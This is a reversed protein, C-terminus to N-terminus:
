ATCHKSGLIKLSKGKDPVATSNDNSVHPISVVVSKVVADRMQRVIDALRSDPYFNLIGIISSFAKITHERNKWVFIAVGRDSLISPIGDISNEQVVDISTSCAMKVWVVLGNRKESKSGRFPMPVVVNAKWFQTCSAFFNNVFFALLAWLCETRITSLLHIM